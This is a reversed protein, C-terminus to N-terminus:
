AKASRPRPRRSFGPKVSVLALAKAERDAKDARAKELDAQRRLGDAQLTLLGVGPQFMELKSEDNASMELKSDNSDILQPLSLSAM